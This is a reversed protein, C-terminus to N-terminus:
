ELSDKLEELELWRMEKADLTDRAADLDDTIKQFKVPDSIYLDPDSLAAEMDSIRMSLAEIEAPLMDLARQDKYSLKKQQKVPKDAKQAKKQAQESRAKDLQVVNTDQNITATEQRKLREYDAYGGAYETAGGQGDFVITSTVIRDIFDRDHSVLLITGTYDALVDQLLDLTDMDLDNTPEDLILFNSPKILHTALLLRNREGGSLAGVPTDAQDARFLFDKLYGMVHKKDDGITVWNGGGGTVTDRVSMDDQLQDRKQDLYLAQLNTGVRVSGSDVGEEGLLCKILTSKGAGNPGVIGIRDGRKIRISFDSFLSRGDYAKSINKAEIVMAGSKGGEVTQLNVSGQQKRHDAREARMEYLRRLRGQNRKRRASIGEVAWRSEETIKKDLKSLRMNENELEEDMWADFKSFGADLRKVQGRDLWLCASTVKELFRRDHSILVFAGRWSNLYSELWLITNIDLHNTPEDLLLLDPEGILTRALAARRMEGGSADSPAVSANVSLDAVLVDARYTQDQEDEPLGGLIYDYLTDYGSGDPEQPLYAVRAGPQWWLDGSDVDIQGAIVKMLTSKGCGNRGLLCLRDQARIHLELHDFVPDVGHTLSIGNISLLPPAM